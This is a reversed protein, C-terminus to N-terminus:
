KKKIDEISGDVKALSKAGTARKRLVDIKQEVEEKLDGAAEDVKKKGEEIVIVVDDKVEIVKDGVEKVKEGAKEVVDNIGKQGDKVVVELENQIKDAAVSGTQKLLDSDSYTVLYPWSKTIM